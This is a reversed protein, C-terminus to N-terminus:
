ALQLIQTIRFNQIKCKRFFIRIELILSHLAVFCELIIAKWTKKVLCTLLLLCTQFKYFTFFKSCCFLRFHSKVNVDFFILKSFLKYRFFIMGFIILTSFFLAFFFNVNFLYLKLVAIRQQM